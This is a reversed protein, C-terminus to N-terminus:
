IAIWELGVVLVDYNSTTAMPAPALASALLLRTFRTVAVSSPLSSNLVPTANMTLLKKRKGRQQPLESYHITLGDTLPGCCSSCGNNNGKKRLQVVVM